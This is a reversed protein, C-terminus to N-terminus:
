ATPKLDPYPYPAAKDCSPRFITERPGPTYYQDVPWYLPKGGVDYVRGQRVGATFVPHQINFLFCGGPKLTRYVNRYVAEWDEVYHLVLNSLVLDYTSAPYDYGELGCVGYQIAPHFNKERATQIM